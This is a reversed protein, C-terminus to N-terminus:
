FQTTEPLLIKESPQDGSLREKEVVVFYSSPGSKGGLREVSGNEILLQIDNRLTRESVDAFEANLHKMRCDSPFQRIFEVIASQRENANNSVKLSIISASKEAERDRSEFVDDLYVKPEVGEALMLEHLNNLERRLVESNISNMEGIAEALAVLRDLVNLSSESLDRVLDVAASGLENRLKINRVLRSVRFVALSIQHALLSIPTAKIMASLIDLRWL